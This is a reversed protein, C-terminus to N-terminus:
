VPRKELQGALRNGIPDLEFILRNQRDMRHEAASLEFTFGSPAHEKLFADPSQLRRLLEAQINATEGVYLWQRADSLGYVGSAAPANKDVSTATFSRNGHYEFPM